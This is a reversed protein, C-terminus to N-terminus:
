LYVSCLASWSNTCLHTQIFIWHDTLIQTHMLTSSLYLSVGCCCMRLCCLFEPSTSSVSCRPSFFLGFLAIPCTGCLFHQSGHGHAGHFISEKMQTMNFKPCCFQIYVIWLYVHNRWLSLQSIITKGMYTVRKKKKLKSTPDLPYGYNPHNSFDLEVTYFWCIGTFPLKMFLTKGKKGRGKGREVQYYLSKIGLIQAVM